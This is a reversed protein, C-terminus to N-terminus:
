RKRPKPWTPGHPEAAIRTDAAAPSDTLAHILAHIHQYLEPDRAHMTRLMGAVHELDVGDSTVRMSITGDPFRAREVEDRLHEVLVRLGATKDTWNRCIIALTEPEPRRGLGELRNYGPRSIGLLKALKHQTLGAASRESELTKALNTRKM